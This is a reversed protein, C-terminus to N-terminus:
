QPVHQPLRDAAHAAQQQHVVALVHDGFGGLDDGVQEGGAVSERHEGGAALRQAHGASAV